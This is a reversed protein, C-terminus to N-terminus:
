QQNLEHRRGIILLARDLPTPAGCGVSTRQEIRYILHVAIDLADHDRRLRRPALAPELARAEVRLSELDKGAPTGAVSPAALCSALREVARAFARAIREQRDRFALGSELPDHALVLDTILQLEAVRGESPAAGRFYERARTYQALDFAAEGAGTLASVNRPDLRLARQFYELARRSEGAALFLRGAEAQAAADDPLSSGLVLLESVARTRQGQALLYRVLEFRVQRRAIDPEGSWVGYLANQYYRVTATLDNRRVELRALQLNVEPDEPTAERIRLLVQRASDDQQSAALARALALGYARHDRDLATARRLANIAPETRGAALDRESGDYWAAADRLRQARNAGAAARTLLFGLIVIAGLVLLLVLERHM